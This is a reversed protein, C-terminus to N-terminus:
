KNVVNQAKGKLYKDINEVTTEMIRTLAETTNFANHPTVLVRKDKLLQREEKVIRQKAKTLKALEKEEKIATEEELVDLKYKLLYESEGGVQIFRVIFICVFIDALAFIALGISVFEYVLILTIGLLSVVFYKM